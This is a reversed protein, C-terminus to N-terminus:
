REYVAEFDTRSVRQSTTAGPANVVVVAEAVDTITFPEGIEDNHVTWNPITMGPIVDTQIANWTDSFSM